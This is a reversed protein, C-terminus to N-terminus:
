TVYEEKKGMDPSTLEAAPAAPLVLRVVNVPIVAVIPGPLKKTHNLEETCDFPVLEVAM